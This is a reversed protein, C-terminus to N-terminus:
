GAVSLSPVVEKILEVTFVTGSNPGSSCLIRGEHAEIIQRCLYLGLGSGLSYSRGARGQWFRNFLNMQEEEPIGAGQDTITLIILNLHDTLEVKVTAHEPSFKLANDLLNTVVRKLAGSDGLTHLNPKISLQLYVNRTDAVPELLEIADNVLNSYNVVERAIYSTQRECRFVSLLNNIIQLVETHSALMKPFLEAQKNADIKENVILDLIRQCGIIPNKLDHTLAAVFDERQQLLEIQQEMVRATISDTIDRAIYSIGIIEGMSKIPSVSVSITIEKGDKNLLTTEYHEIFAGKMAMSLIAHFDEIQLDRGFDKINKGLMETSRYGIIREAGKNWTVITGDTKLAIICDQCSEIISALFLHSENM